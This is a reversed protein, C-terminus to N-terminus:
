LAIHKDYMYILTVVMVYYYISFFTKDKIRKMTLFLKTKAAEKQRM